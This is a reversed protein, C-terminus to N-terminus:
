HVTSTSADLRRVCGKFNVEQWELARSHRKAPHEVELLCTMPGHQAECAPTLALAAGTSRTAAM